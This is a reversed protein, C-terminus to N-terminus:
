GYLECLGPDAVAEDFEIARVTVPPCDGRRVELRQRATWLGGTAHCENVVAAITRVRPGAAACGTVARCVDRCHHRGTSRAGSCREARCAALKERCSAACSPAAIAYSAVCTALLFGAAVALLKM